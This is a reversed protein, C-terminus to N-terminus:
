SDAYLFFRHIKKRVIGSRLWTSSAGCSIGQSPPREASEESLDKCLIPCAASPSTEVVPLFLATVSAPQREGATSVRLGLADVAPAISRFKDPEANAFLPVPVATALGFRAAARDMEAPCGTLGGPFAGTLELRPEPNGDSGLLEGM